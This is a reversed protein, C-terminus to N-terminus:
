FGAVLPIGGDKKDCIERESGAETVQNESLVKYQGGSVKVYV